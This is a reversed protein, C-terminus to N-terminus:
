IQHKKLILRIAEYLHPKLDQVSVPQGTLISSYCCGSVLEIIMYIMVEPKDFKHGSDNLLKMYIDYINRQADDIPDVLSNKFMGWGLHKSILKLLTPNKELEDIIQDILFIIQDEFVPIEEEQLRNYAKKFVEASKFAILKYRIDVKDKFYLYFTGKAVGAKNAIDSISTKHFGNQTFLAYATDLLATQKRKKKEEVKKLSIRRERRKILYIEFHAFIM